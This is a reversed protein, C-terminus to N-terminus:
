DMQCTVDGSLIALVDDYDRPRIIGATVGPVRGFAEIWAVQEPRVRGRNTKMELALCRTDRLCIVDPFGYASRRADFTHYCRWGLTRADKLITQQLEKESPNWSAQYDKPEMTATVAETM